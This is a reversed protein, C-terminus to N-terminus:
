CSYWLCQHFTDSDVVHHTNFHASFDKNKVPANCVMGNHTWGCYKATEDIASQILAIME